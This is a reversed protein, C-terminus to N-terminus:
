LPAAHRRHATLGTQTIPRNPPTWLMQHSAPSHGLGGPADPFRPRGQGTGLVMVLALAELM